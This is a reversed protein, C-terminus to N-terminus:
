GPPSLEARSGLRHRLLVAMEGAPPSGAHVECSRGGAADSLREPQARVLSDRRRGDTAGCDRRTPTSSLRIGAPPHDPQSSSHGAATPTRKGARGYPHGVGRRVSQPPPGIPCLFVLDPRDSVGPGPRGVEVRVSHLRSRLDAHRAPLYVYEFLCGPARAQRLQPDCATRRRLDNAPLSKVSSSAGVIDVGEAPWGWGRGAARAGHALAQPDRRRVHRGDMFVASPGRMRAAGAHGGRPSEGSVDGDTRHDLTETPSMPRAAFGPLSETDDDRETALAFSLTNTLNRQAGPRHRRPTSRFTPQANKWVSRGDHLVPM